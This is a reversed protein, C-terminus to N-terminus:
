QPVECNLSRSFALIRSVTHESPAAEAQGLDKKLAQLKYYEDELSKDEFIAKAVAKTEEKSTEGYLYRILQHESVRTPM